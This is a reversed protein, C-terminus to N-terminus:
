LDREADESIIARIRAQWGGLAHITLRSVVSRRPQITISTPGATRGRTMGGGGHGGHGGPRDPGAGQGTRRVRDHRAAQSPRLSVADAPRGQLPLRPPLRPRGRPPHLRRVPRREEPPPGRGPRRCVQPRVILTVTEDGNYPYGWGSIGSLLHIAKASSNCPLLVSRPMRPPISGEPGNLLVANRVRGGQPDVLVFPVGEVTRPSYDDLILRETPNESAYFMGKTTDVTAVKRLDLPLYKGRQTLFQLLDALGEPSVQKEFGEPMVSKKSAAMQDIDERLLVHKKGEADILEVTTKTEGALLGNLVQGETTSVTYQLFNGEVSRSPDLIHVILESKPHAAMGTLDPGVKGGEGGHSHCKMCQAKFVERGKSADGGKLVIPSLADIVKQRDPDPLGGGKSLLAKARAAIRADPHAALSQSQDLSLASMSVSGGEIGALLDASWETKALLARIAAGRASPALGPVSAVLVEGVEPSASRAVAELLGDALQPSTRPTIIAVLDKAAQADNKRLEILQRAADVRAADSKMADSASALFGAAIERAFQDLNKAGWRTALGILQGRGEPSLKALLTGIAKEDGETLSAAKDRPWGRALGSVVADRVKPDSTELKALLPGVESIPGGRAFHESVRSVVLPLALSPPKAFTRSAIASLFAKDNKAAAATAADPLWRDHDIAGSALAEALGLAFADDPATDAVALLAALRVQPSRDELMGAAVMEKVWARFGSLSLAANRRVGDSPHSLASRLSAISGGEGGRIRRQQPGSPASLTWLAHIAGPVLGVSDVVRDHILGNLDEEVDAWGREVLLRQAHLRWFMNPNKLASVLGKGDKLDLKPNPSEVGGRAVIKYIRGHTKDRAPTVYAAGKGTKFGEPTPNHQVIFNYWDLMWVNGDPGVEAVIPSTWEDDSAALNWGYHAEFDTGKPHLTFTATLHGTPENVFATRNWYQPPYTRATYLASGAGATFGGHWDVQRVKDTIPFFRNSDAINGLVTPSMGRVSEYYRNPIPMYVSPCGNATSGFLLGEESIGVGWSNNNTGRLSELKSGDPKFRFFGQRFTHPEGGVTGHYGAYGIMAYIWNDLGYRLNSPGAHTDNTAFGTFLVKRQDAKDDGDTDKLFLMDPAQAVIVGGNAFCLSTPISLDDAFVTAKDARGDGDTDEVISIRDRGKGKPQIENPYDVTEAVWLRGKHDWNMAIPKGILPESAFLRAEFGPPLAMHKVSEAPDLPDQMRRIPEGVTGWKKGPLYNPIEAERSTFAKLDGPVHPRSDYVDGKNAAWRIGREVLDHFGPHGWTRADHGYATYFVRGKGHTRTWTWPEAGDKDDRTQLVHRGQANHKTHVYTEDWTRFPELGRTIPHDPDAVSTDFEGTGHKLFQAGVLNVYEDSNRFCFSACHLPVFGGGAAVYDLLAEEQDKGIEDTNAFVVLADYKALTAANFDRLNETYSVEIGRGALVPRIQEFRDRPNHHGGDGYFLVSIPRPSDAAPVTAPSALLALLPAIRILRM